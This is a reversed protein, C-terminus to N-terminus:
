PSGEFARRIEQMRARNVGFDSHGVRSASRFQIVGDRSDVYFEVDDVFRFLRSRAEAHLYNETRTVITTRPQSALVAELRKM